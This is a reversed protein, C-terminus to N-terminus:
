ISFKDYIKVAASLVETKYEELLKMVNKDVDIKQGVKKRQFLGERRQLTCAMDEETVTVNLFTAIRYLQTSLDSVLQSYSVLLLHDPSSNEMWDLNMKRWAKMKERVFGNLPKMHKAHGTHGAAQRNFESVISPLPDRVILLCRPFRSRCMM